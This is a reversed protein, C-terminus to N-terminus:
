LFSMSHVALVTLPDRGSNETIPSLRKGLSSPRYTVTLISLYQDDGTTERGGAEGHRLAAAPPEPM